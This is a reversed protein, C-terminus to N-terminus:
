ERMETNKLCCNDRFESNLNSRACYQHVGRSGRGRRGGEGAGLASFRHCLPRVKVGVDEDAAAELGPVDRGGLLFAPSATM